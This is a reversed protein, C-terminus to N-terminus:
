GSWQSVAAGAHVHAQSSVQYYSVIRYQTNLTATFLLRTALKTWWVPCVSFNFFFCVLFLGLLMILGTRDWSRVATWPLLVILTPFIQQFTPESGPTFSPLMFVHVCHLVVAMPCLSQDWLVM